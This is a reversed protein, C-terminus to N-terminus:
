ALIFSCLEPLLENAPSISRSVSASISLKFAFPISPSNKLDVWLPTLTAPGSMAVTNFLSAMEVFGEAYRRPASVLGKFVTNIQWTMDHWKDHRKPPVHKHALYSFSFVLEPSPVQSHSMLLSCEWLWPLPYKQDSPPDPNNLPVLIMSQKLAMSSDLCECVSCEPHGPCGVLHWPPM